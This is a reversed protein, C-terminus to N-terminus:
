TQYQIGARTQLFAPDYQKSRFLPYNATDETFLGALVASVADIDETKKYQVLATSFM